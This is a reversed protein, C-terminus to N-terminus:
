IDRAAALRVEFTRPFDDDSRSKQRYYAKRRRLKVTKKVPAAGQGGQGGQGQGPESTERSPTPLEQSAPLFVADETPEQEVDSLNHIHPLSSSAALCGRESLRLRDLPNKLKNHLHLVEAADFAESSRRPPPAPAVSLLRLQEEGRERVEDTENYLSPTSGFQDEQVQSLRYSKKKWGRSFQTPVLRSLSLSSQSLRESWSFGQWTRDRESRSLRNPKTGLGVQCQSSEFSLARELRVPTRPVSTGGWQLAGVIAFLISM